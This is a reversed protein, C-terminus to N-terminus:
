LKPIETTKWGNLLFKPFGAGSLKERAYSNESFLDGIPTWFYHPPSQTQSLLHLQSGSTLSQTNPLLQFGPDRSSILTCPLEEWRWEFGTPPKKGASLLVFVSAKQLKDVTLGLWLRGLRLLPQLWGWHLETKCYLNTCKLLKQTEWLCAKGSCLSMPDMVSLADNLTWILSHHSKEM